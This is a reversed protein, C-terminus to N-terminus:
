DPNIVNLLDALGTLLFDEKQFIYLWNSDESIVIVRLKPHAMLLQALSDKAAPPMSEGLLVVSVENLSIEVLLDEMGSAQSVILNIKSGSATVLDTLARNWLSDKEMLLVSPTPVIIM